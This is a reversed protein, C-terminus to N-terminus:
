SHAGGALLSQLRLIQDPRLPERIRSQQEEITREIQAEARDQTAAITLPHDAGHHRKLVIARTHATLM